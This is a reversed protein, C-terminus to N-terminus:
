LRLCTQAQLRVGAAACTSVHRAGARVMATYGTYFFDVFTAPVAPDCVVQAM